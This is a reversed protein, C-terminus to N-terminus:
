WSRAFSSVFEISKATDSNRCRPFRSVHVRGEIRMYSSPWPRGVSTHHQRPARQGFYESAFVPQHESLRHDPAFRDRFEEAPWARGRRCCLCVLLCSLGPLTALAVVISRNTTPAGTRRESWLQLLSKEVDLRRPLRLLRFPPPLRRGSRAQGGAVKYVILPIRRRRLQRDADADADCV